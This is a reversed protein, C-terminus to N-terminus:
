ALRRSPHLRQQNPIQLRPIPLSHPKRKPRLRPARRLHAYRKLLERYFQQVEQDDQSSPKAIYESAGLGLAKMSITANRQTLTSVMIVRTGPLIKLLEPLATIGDMHPM